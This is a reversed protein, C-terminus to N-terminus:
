QRRMTARRLDRDREKEKIAARKDHLQKGRAVALELKARGDKFYISLPILTVGRERTEGELKRLERRHVLLKRSRLVEHNMALSAKSYPDIHLGYLFLEGNEIRAFADAITARGLRLSKVETGVLAIGCELKASIAYEHYAKRNEIRPNFNLSDKKKNAAM